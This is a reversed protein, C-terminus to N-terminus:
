GPPYVQIVDILKLRTTPVTEERGDATKEQDSETMITLLVAEAGQALEIERSHGGGSENWLAIVRSMLGFASSHRKVMGISTLTIVSCGPDDALVSAYRASWRNKLQPGDLLITVVLTPGVHRVLDGIPDQRALDECILHSITMMDGVNIFSVRRKPIKISEWWTTKDSPLVASLGYRSIQSDDLRWRHHKYQIYKSTGDAKGKPGYCEGLKDSRQSPDMYKCYVANRSFNFQDPKLKM